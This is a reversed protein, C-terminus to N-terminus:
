ERSDIGIIRGARRVDLVFQGLIPDLCNLLYPFFNVEASSMEEGVNRIM